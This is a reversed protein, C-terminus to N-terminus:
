NLHGRLQKGGFGQRKREFSASSNHGQIKSKKQAQLDDNPTPPSHRVSHKKKDGAPKPTQSSAFYEQITKLATSSSKQKDKSKTRTKKPSHLLHRLSIAPASWAAQQKPNYSVVLRYRRWQSSLRRKLPMM